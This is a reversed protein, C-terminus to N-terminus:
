FPPEDQQPPTSWPDAAGSPTAWPDAGGQRQQGGSPAGQADQRAAKTVKATDWRISPAVWFLNAEYVTRKEGDKEYERQSLKGEAHVLMGKTLSEAANEAQREWLTCRLFTAPGDEWDGSSGKVRDNSAITFNAVAKGSPTFRLEPDATLRGEIIIKPLAM